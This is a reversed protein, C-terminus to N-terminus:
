LRREGRAELVAIRAELWRAWARDQELQRELHEAYWELERPTCDVTAKPTGHIFLIADESEDSRALDARTKDDVVRQRIEPSAACDHCITVLPRTSTRWADAQRSEPPPATRGCGPCEASTAESM